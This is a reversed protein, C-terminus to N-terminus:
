PPQASVSGDGVLAEDGHGCFECVCRQVVPTPPVQKGHLLQIGEAANRSKGGARGLESGMGYTLIYWSHKHGYKQRKVADLM